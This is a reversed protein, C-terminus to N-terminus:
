YVLFIVGNDRDEFRPPPLSNVYNLYRDAEVILIVRPRNQNKEILKRFRDLSFLRAEGDPAHRLGYALEGAKKLLHVDERNYFWCVAHFLYEDSVVLANNGVRNTNRELLTQPARGELARNPLAMHSGLLALVPAVCFFVLKRRFDGKKLSLLTLVSWVSVGLVMAMWKVWESPDYGRSGLLGTVQTFVFGLAFVGLAVGLLLAGLDFAKRRGSALYKTVGIAVLVIVPPFCPLVYPILKGSSASFFVLPFFFWCLLFRILPDDRWRRGLGLGAAPTLVVWPLAGGILVPLYYWFPEPHQGPIPSLFRRVHETWFFYNWFDRERLYIMVAWPLIVLVATLLPIWSTKLFIKMRREWLVFPVVTVIPVVFALFGKVLFALGCFGGFVAWGILFREGRETRNAYFFAVMAGTLFLTLLSDLINIVGLAFVLLCTLYAAGALLAAPASNGKSFLRVLFFLMLATLGTALASPLRVAFRNQGFLGISIANVWYGMVPKEFYRVGNLRPVVWDGSAMMERPIESYRSEDPVTMPRLGLPLLYLLGFLGIVALVSRTM